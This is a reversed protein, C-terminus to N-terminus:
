SRRNHRNRRNRRSKKRGLLPVKMEGTIVYMGISNRVDEPTEPPIVFHVLPLTSCADVDWPDDIVMVHTAGLLRAEKLLVTRYRCGEEEEEQCRSPEAKFLYSGM